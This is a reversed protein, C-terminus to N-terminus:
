TPNREMMACSILGKKVTQSSERGTLVCSTFPEGISDVNKFLSTVSWDPRGGDFVTQDERKDDDGHDGRKLADGRRGDVHPAIDFALTDSGHRILNWM